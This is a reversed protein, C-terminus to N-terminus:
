RWMEMRLGKSDLPPDSPIQKATKEHIRKATWCAACADLVDDKAVNRPREKEFKEVVERFDNLLKGREKYGRVSKKRYKMWSGAMELFCLEPHVEFVQTQLKPSIEYDVERIKHSIAFAPLSIGIRSSSSLRNARNASNYNDHRTAPRVPPSFVSNRREQLLKRAESDCARGGREAADLLGIPIDVAIVSAGQLLNLVDAFTAKVDYAMNGRGLHHFVVFWGGKCGDVGAVWIESRKM